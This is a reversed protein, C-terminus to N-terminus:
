GLTAPSIAFKTSFFLSLGEALSVQGMGIMVGRHIAARHVDLFRKGAEDSMKGKSFM